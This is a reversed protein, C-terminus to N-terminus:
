VNAKELILVEDTNDSEKLSVQVQETRSTPVKKGVYDAQVPLERHGRDVLVALQISKPRGFDFLADMAARITRGTYLVDDVLLIKRDDMDFPLQTDKVQPQYDLRTLDDRYLTIDVIGLPVPQSYVSDLISKLREALYVGRTRIGVILLDKGDPHEERIEYVMRELCRTIEAADMITKKTTWTM